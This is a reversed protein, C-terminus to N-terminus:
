ALPRRSQGKRKRKRSGGRTGGKTPGPVPGKATSLVSAEGNLTELAALVLVHAALAWQGNNVATALTSM